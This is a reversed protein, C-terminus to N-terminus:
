NGDRGKRLVWVAASVTISERTGYYSMDGKKGGQVPDTPYASAYYGMMSGELKGEWKLGLKVRGQQIM